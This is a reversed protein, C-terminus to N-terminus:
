TLDNHQAITGITCRSAASLQGAPVHLFEAERDIFNASLWPRAIRDIKPPECTIWKM